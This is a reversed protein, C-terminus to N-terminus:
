VTSAFGDPFLEFRQRVVNQLTDHAFEFGQAVVWPGRSALFQLAVFILPADSHTVPAHHVDYVILRFENTDRPDRVPSFNIFLNPRSQPRPEGVRQRRHKQRYREEEHIPREVAHPDLTLLTRM